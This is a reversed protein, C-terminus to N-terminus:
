SVAVKASGTSGIASSPRPSAEDSRRSTTAAAQARQGDDQRQDGSCGAQDYAAAEVQNLPRALVPEITSRLNRKRRRARSNLRRGRSSRTRVPTMVDCKASRSGSVPTRALAVTHLASTLASVRRLHVPAAEALPAIGAQTLAVVVGRRLTRGCRSGDAREEAVGEEVWGTVRGCETRAALSSNSVGASSAQWLNAV